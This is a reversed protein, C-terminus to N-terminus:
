LSCWLALLCAMFSDDTIHPMIICESNILSWDFVCECLWLWCTTLNSIIRQLKCPKNHWNESFHFKPHLLAAYSAHPGREPQDLQHQIQTLWDHLHFLPRTPTSLPDSAKRKPNWHLLGFNDGSGGVCLCNVPVRLNPYINM